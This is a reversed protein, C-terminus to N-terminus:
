IPLEFKVDVAVQQALDVIDALKVAMKAADDLNDCALIKMFSSAILAKADDVQTGQLRVIIPIKLKLTHAADIIGKAIVDCRMIGGFINVLIAKVKPDSTILRFAETVQQSTAGGGVDLFNAPYGGHLRIIDMTSMALGAGNVLCGISGDLAIYNLNAESAKKEKEDVQSWDKLDFIEKQRYEANDDFNLKCDMCIVKGTSIEAMPNIELLTCDHKAFLNYLKTILQVAQTLCDGEFGMFVAIKKAEDEQIGNEIDIFQRIIADPSDRAVDEINVGGQSSALIVPGAAARDLAIAFYYERRSYVRESIMVKKCITGAEGTQKTFIKSNIMKSAIDKAQAPDYVVKVGGKLGSEFHGKGRGGTLVQAKLVVDKTGSAEGFKQAIDFAEQSTTAVQYQPTPIGASRLLDMAQYEHINLFRKSVHQIKSNLNKFACKQAFSLSSSVFKLLSM